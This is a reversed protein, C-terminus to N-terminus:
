FSGLKEAKEKQRGHEHHSCNQPYVPIKFQIYAYMHLELATAPTYDYKFFDLFKVRIEESIKRHKLADAVM